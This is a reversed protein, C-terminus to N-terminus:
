AVFAKIARQVEPADHLHPAHGADPLMHLQAGLKEALKPAQAVPIIADQAGHIILTKPLSSYDHHRASYDDLFGLWRLWHATEHLRPHHSMEAVIAKARVDGKALLGSFRKATRASDMEFNAYFQAFTDPPMADHCHADRVFQYPAAISVFADASIAGSILMQRALVGGLSWGIVLDYSERHQHLSEPSHEIYDFAEANPAISLLADPPQTWGSLTLIKM